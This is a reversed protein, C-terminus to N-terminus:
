IPRMRMHKALSAIYGGYCPPLYLNIIYFGTIYLFSPTYSVMCTTYLIHFPTQIMM